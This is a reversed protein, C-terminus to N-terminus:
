KHTHPTDADHFEYGARIWMELRRAATNDYRKWRGTSTTEKSSTTTQKRKNTTSPHGRTKVTQYFTVGGLTFHMKCRAQLNITICMDDIPHYLTLTESGYVHTGRYGGAPSVTFHVTSRNLPAHGWSLRRMRQIKVLVTVTSKMTNYKKQVATTALRLRKIMGHSTQAFKLTERRQLFSTINQSSTPDLLVAPLVLIGSYSSSLM